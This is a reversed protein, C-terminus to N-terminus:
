KVAKVSLIKSKFSGQVPWQIGIQMLYSGIYQQDDGEIKYLTQSDLGRLQLITNSRTDNTAGLMTENLNYLYLVAEKHDKSVFQLACRNHKYPSVLRYLVGEQLLPRIEKYKTIKETAISREEPTWKSIDHGLGLVGSMAVDFRYALSPQQQHPDEHTTWSIMTNAPFIGLYSYQIFLRDIPDTNDSAWALDTRAMMGLDVRGGGSSCNEFWIDPFQSRLQDILKYLNQVYRILVERQLPSTASPWGTESLARNMDWKVYKINHNKLITSLSTYLYNYVDERALNLILQNRGQHRTRNPSYLVWDPHSRYLDSNPNVMEPEIWLGFDLGLDNIKKILPTLGNPFKQTDVTWDGLGAHDDKRGKFWGDDIVFTEVGVSKAIKALVIQQEENINFTTAYWSNYIVPRVKHKTSEPLVIEKTYGSLNHSVGETGQKTYGFAFKPTVFRESPKLNWWTDWFNIGGVIQLDGQPSKDFDIRWNGSYQLSGFWAAGSTDGESGPKRVIFFPAGYSKFDRVQLTKVGPTLLTTQPQFEHAWYGSLYSLEYSDAPLSLSASQLNELRITSSKGANVVEIWKEIIDWQPIVRIYSIIQLPYTKDRQTVKLTPYGEVDIVEEKEVKMEIDRVNDAFLVELAPTKNAFSGRVPVEQVRGTWLPNKVSAGEPNGYYQPVLEGNENIIIKYVSSRTHILWGAPSTIKEIVNSPPAVQCFASSIALVFTSAFFIRKMLFNEINYDSTCAM